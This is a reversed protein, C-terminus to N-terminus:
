EETEVAQLPCEETEVAQFPRKESEVAKLLHEEETREAKLPKEKETEEAQLPGEEVIEVAQLPCEEASKVAQLLHEEETREAKLPKEEESKGAQIPQEEEKDEATYHAIVVVPHCVEKQTLTEQMARYIASKTSDQLPEFNWSLSIQPCLYKKIRKRYVITLVVLAMAIIIVVFLVVAEVWPSERGDATSECVTRSLRSPDRDMDPHIQVTVCYRTRPELNDLVVPNQNIGTKNKADDKHGDKWYAISYIPSGYVARFSSMTFNPDSISVEMTRGNALLSLGPSGIITDRDPTLNDSKTWESVEDGRQSQVRGQYTGFSSISANPSSLVCETLSTSLCASIWLQERGLVTRYQATYNLEGAAGVPPDWRLVMDMNFSSLRVSSPPSLVSSTPGPPSLIPLTPRPPSLVSSSPGPPSFVVTAATSYVSLIVFVVSTKM